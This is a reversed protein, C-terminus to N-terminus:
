VVLRGDRRKGTRDKEAWLLAGAPLAVLRAEVGVRTVRATGDWYQDVGYLDVVIARRVGLAAWDIAPVFPTPHRTDPTPDDISVSHDIRWEWGRLRAEERLWDPGRVDIGARSLELVFLRAVEEVLPRDEVSVLAPLVVTRGERPIVVPQPVPPPDVIRM